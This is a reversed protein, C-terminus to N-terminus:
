FTITQINMTTVGAVVFNNYYLVSSALYLSGTSNTYFQDRFTLTSVIASSIQAIGINITSAYLSGTSLSLSSGAYPTSLYGMSGLGILSSIIATSTFAALTSFSLSAL